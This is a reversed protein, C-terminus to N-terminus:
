SATLLKADLLAREAEKVFRVVHKKEKELIRLAEHEGLKSVKRLFHLSAVLELWNEQLLDVGEPVNM